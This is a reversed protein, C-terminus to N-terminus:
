KHPSRQSQSVEVASNDEETLLGHASQKQEGFDLSYQDATAANIARLLQPADTSGIIITKQKENKTRYKLQVANGQDGMVNYIWSRKTLSYRVGWGGSDLLSYKIPEASEIKSLPIEPGILGYQINLQENTLTVRLSSMMFLLLGTVLYVPLLAFLWLGGTSIASLTAMVMLAVLIRLWAPMTQKERYIIDEAGMFKKEYDDEINSQM